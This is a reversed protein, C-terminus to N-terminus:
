VEGNVLVEYTDGHPFCALMLDGNLLTVWVWESRGDHEDKSDVQQGLLYQVEAPTAPTKAAVQKVPRRYEGTGHTIVLDTDFNEIPQQADFDIM